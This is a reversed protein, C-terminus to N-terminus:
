PEVVQLHDDTVFGPLKAVLRLDAAAIVIGARDTARAAVEGVWRAEPISFDRMGFRKVSVWLRGRPNRGRVSNLESRIYEPLRARKIVPDDLNIPHVWWYFAADSAAIRERAAVLRELSRFFDFGAEDLIHAIV